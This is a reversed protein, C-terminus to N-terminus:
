SKTQIVLSPASTAGISSRKSISGGITCPRSVQGPPLHCVFLLGFYLAPRRLTACGQYDTHIRSGISISGGITCPRLSSVLHCIASSCCDSTCRQVAFRRAARTILTSLPSVVAASAARRWPSLTASTSSHRSRKRSPASFASRARGFSSSASRSSSILRSLRLTPSSVMSRSMRRSAERCRGVVGPVDSSHHPRAGAHRHASHTSHKPKRAGPQPRARNQSRHWRPDVSCQGLADLLQDLSIRGKTIPPQPHQQAERLPQPDVTLGHVAHQFELTPQDMLPGHGRPRSNLAELTAGLPAVLSPRHVERVDRTSNVAPAM